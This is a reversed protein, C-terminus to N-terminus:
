RGCVPWPSAGARAYLMAARRDQEAEPAAAPDGTGGVSAWTGFSFQYKGRYAGGGGIAAPNGGSECAAIAQLTPSVSPLAPAERLARRLDRRLDRRLSRVRQKLAGIRRGRLRHRVAAAAFHEGRADASRRALRVARDILEHHVRSRRAARVTHGVVTLHGAVPAPPLTQTPSPPDEAEPAEATACAALLTTTLALATTKTSM